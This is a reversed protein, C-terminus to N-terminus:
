LVRKNIKQLFNTLVTADNVKTEIVYDDSKMLIKNGNYRVMKLPLINPDDSQLSLSMCVYQKIKNNIDPISKIKTTIAFYWTYM